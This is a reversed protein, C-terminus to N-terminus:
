QTRMIFSVNLPPFSTLVMLNCLWQVCQSVSYAATRPGQRFIEAVIMAPIPGLGVAFCALYIYVMAVCVIAFPPQEAPPKSRAITVVITQILLCCALVLTPWLLLTRRGAKELLPLAVITCVVNLLGLGVVFYPMQDTQVKATQLM